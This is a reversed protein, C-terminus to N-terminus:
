VSCCCCENYWSALPLWVQAIDAVWELKEAVSPALFVALQKTTGEEYEVSFGLLNLDIYPPIYESM